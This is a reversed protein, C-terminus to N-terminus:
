QDKQDEIRSLGAKAKQDLSNKFEHKEVNIARKYYAKANEYEGKNECIIGLQIAASEAFYYPQKEGAEL